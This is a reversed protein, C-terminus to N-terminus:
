FALILHKIFYVSCMWLWQTFLCKEEWRIISTIFRLQEAQSIMMPVAFAVNVM